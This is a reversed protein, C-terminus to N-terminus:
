FNLSCYTLKEMNISFTFYPQVYTFCSSDSKMNFVHEGVVLQYVRDQKSKKTQKTAQIKNKTTM